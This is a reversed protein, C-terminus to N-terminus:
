PRRMATDPSETMRSQKSPLDTIADALAHTLGVKKLKAFPIANVISFKAVQSLASDSLQDLLKDAKADNGIQLILIAIEDPSSMHWTADAIVNRLAGPNDPCGDTIMVLLLPKANNGLASRRAFYEEFQTRLAQAAHTAGKPVTRSFIAPIASAEVNNYVLLDKAFLVLEFGDPLVGHAAQSLDATQQRCWEWRSVPPNVLAVSTMSSGSDTELPSSYCDSVSM